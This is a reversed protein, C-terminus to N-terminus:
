QFAASSIKFPKYDKSSKKQYCPFLLFYHFYRPCFGQIHLEDPIRKNELVTDLASATVRPHEKSLHRWNNKYFEFSFVQISTKQVSTTTWLYETFFTSKSIECFEYSFLQALTDRKIFNCASAQVGGTLLM